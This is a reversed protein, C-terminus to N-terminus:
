AEQLQPYADHDVVVTLRQRALLSAPVHASPQGLAARIAPAKESGSALLLIHRAANLTALSLTIRRPPPKPSERVALCLEQEAAQLAPADPFLSAVHGDAGIGLVAVDLTPKPGLEACLLQGYRRAGEEPELEGEMRHVEVSDIPLHDLLAQHAMRFNSQEHEPPVCREDAFWIKVANWQVESAALLEYTRIPTSGGSLALHACGRQRNAQALDRAVAAATWCALREDDDLVEVESIARPNRV